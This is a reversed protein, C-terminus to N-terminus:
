NGVYTPTGSSKSKQFLALKLMQGAKMRMRATNSGAAEAGIRGGGSSGEAHITGQAKM